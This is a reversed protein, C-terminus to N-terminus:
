GWLAKSAIRAGEAQSRFKAWVIDPHVRGGLGCDTGAIVNERGVLNALRILRQAVLEPHEVTDTTHAVVGPILVKGAPLKTDKWVTWEHEHRVNQDLSVGDANIKLVLDAYDKLTIDGAHPGRGGGYCIHLRVQGSPIDRLTDNMIETLAEFRKRFEPVEMSLAKFKQVPTDIQLIFGADTIAKYETKLAKACADIYDNETAYYQNVGPQYGVNDPGVAAMFVDSVNVGATAAKCNEIDRALEAEGVYTIPGTCALMTGAAVAGPNRGAGPFGGGGGPAGLGGGGIGGGGASRESYYGGFDKAESGIMSFGQAEPTVPVSEFGTLRNRIYGSWSPKYLEGDNIVDLGAEVQKRVIEATATRLRAAYADGDFAQGPRPDLAALDAPRPMSGVHSTLIRDTSRNM